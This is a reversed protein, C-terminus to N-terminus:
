LRRVLGKDVDWIIDSELGGIIGVRLGEERKRFVSKDPEDLFGV